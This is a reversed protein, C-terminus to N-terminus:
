PACTQEKSTTSSTRLVSISAEESRLCLSGLTHWDGGLAAFLQASDLLRRGQARVYGIKAEEYLRQSILIQLFSTQGISYAERANELLAESTKLANQQTSILEADHQLATLVDAVQTFARLITQKYISFKAEYEDIAARKQAELSGGHFIPAALNGGISWAMNSPSWLSQLDFSQPTWSGTLTIDPYERATAVGVAASAAHLQAEASMIDPRTRVLRSPLTLPLRKPLSLKSYDFRPASWTGASKGVLLALAHNAIALQQRVAPLSSKDNALQAKATLLDSQSAKGINVLNAVLEVNREDLAVIKQIAEIQENLMAIQIAQIVVNGTLSVYAAALQYTEFEVLASQREVTRRNRGFIDLDFNVLPGVTYYNYYRRYNAFDESLTSFLDQTLGTTALNPSALVDAVTGSVSVTESPHVRSASASLDIQPYFAGIAAVVSERAQRLASQATAISPSSALALKLIRNLDASHFLRWWGQTVAGGIQLHQTQDAGGASPLRTAGILYSSVGPEPPSKFDPGVSCGVLLFFIAGLIAHRGSPALTSFRM